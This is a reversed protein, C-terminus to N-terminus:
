LSLSPANQGGAAQTPAPHPPCPSVAQLSVPFSAVVGERVSRGGSQGTGVLLLSQPRSPGARRHSSTCAGSPHPLERWVAAWCCGAVWCCGAARSPHWTRAQAESCPSTGERQERGREQHSCGHCALRVATSLLLAQHCSNLDTQSHPLSAESRSVLCFYIGVKYSSSLSWQAGQNCAQSRVLISRTGRSWSVM